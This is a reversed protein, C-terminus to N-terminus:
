LSPNWPTPVYRYGDGARAIRGLSPFPFHYGQVLMREAVAMEYLKRRTKAAEDPITDFMLSWDPHRLLISAAGATVDAQVLVSEKGSAVIHSTHGPTHGHTSHATIGPALEQGGKYQTVNKGIGGFVRKANGFNGKAAPPVKGVNSDDAWFQWEAEPVMIEANPFALKGEADVLGNIHDGHFHSIVVADINKADIGAAALNRHYQGVQGKSKAFMGVGLGTDIAVLRKGTNIVVPTYAHTVENPELFDAELAANVEDRSVNNIYNDALKNTNAGDTVVTIEFDGLKYRYWGANQTGIAAAEAAASSTMALSPLASAATVVAASALVSRRNLETM